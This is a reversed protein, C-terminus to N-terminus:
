LVSHRLFRQKRHLLHGRAPYACPKASLVGIGDIISSAWGFSTRFLDDPLPEFGKLVSRIVTIGVYTELVQLVLPEEPILGSQASADSAMMSVQSIDSAALQVWFSFCHCPNCYRVQNGLVLLSKDTATLSAINQVIVGQRLPTCNAASFLAVSYAM